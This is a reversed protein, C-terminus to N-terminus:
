STGRKARPKATPAGSRRPSPKTEEAEEPETEDEALEAMLADYDIDYPISPTPPEPHHPRHSALLTLLLLSMPLMDLAIALAWAFPVESAYDLVATAKDTPQYSPLRIATEFQGVGEMSRRLRTYVAPVEPIASASGLAQLLATPDAANASALGSVASNIATAFAEENGQRSAAQAREIQSRVHNLLAPRRGLALDLEERGRRFQDIEAGLARAIQGDGPTDSICGDRLECLRLRELESEARTLHGLVVKDREERAQLTALVEKFPELAEAHHQRIAASGGVSTALFLSTTAVQIGSLGLGAAIVLALLPRMYAPRAATGLLIHWGGALVITIIPAAVLPILWRGAGAEGAMVTHLGFYSTVGILVAFITALTQVKKLNGAAVIDSHDRPESPQSSSPYLTARPQLSRGENPSSM